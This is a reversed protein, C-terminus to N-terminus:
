ETNPEDVLLRGRRKAMARRGTLLWAVNGFGALLLGAVSLNAAPFQRSVDDFNRAWLAGAVIVVAGLTNLAALVVVDPSQWPSGSWSKM